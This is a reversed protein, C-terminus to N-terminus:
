LFLQCVSFSVPILMARFFGVAKADAGHAGQEVPTPQLSFVKYLETSACTIVKHYLYNNPHSFFTQCVNFLEM